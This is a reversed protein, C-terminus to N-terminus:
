CCQKYVDPLKPWLNNKCHKRFAPSRYACYYTQCIHISPIERTGVGFGVNGKWNRAYRKETETLAKSKYAIPKGNQISAAGLGKNSADCQLILDDNPDCYAMVPAETVLHKINDFAKYQDEGWEFEVGEKLLKRLPEMEHSLQPLFKSLYGAMGQLTSIEEKTQPAPKNLVAEIKAPHARLGESTVEHGMFQDTSQRFSCKERNLRIGVNECRELLQKLIAIMNLVRSGCYWQRYGGCEWTRRAGWDIKKPFYRWKCIVWITIKHVSIQWLSYTAFTTM